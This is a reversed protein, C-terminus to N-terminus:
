KQIISKILPATNTNTKSTDYELAGIDFKNRTNGLFDTTFTSSLDAGADKAPSLLAIAYDAPAFSGPTGAFLPDTYLSNTDYGKPAYSKWNTFNYLKENPYSGSKFPTTGNVSYYLNNDFAVGSMTSSNGFNMLPQTQGTPAYSYIINNSVVSNTNNASPYLTMGAFDGYVPLINPMIITNGAVTYNNLGAGIAQGYTTLGRRAGIIINNLAKFGKSQAIVNTASEDGVMIGEQRQRAKIKNKEATITAEGAAIIWAPLQWTEVIDAVDPNNSYVLNRQFTCYPASDM